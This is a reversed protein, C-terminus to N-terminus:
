AAGAKLKAILEEANSISLLWEEYRGGAVLEGWPAPDGNKHLGYVGLSEDMLATIDGTLKELAALLEASQKDLELLETGVASIIGKQELEDTPLGRCANVCAVIRRADAIVSEEDETGIEAIHFSTEASSVFVDGSADQYVGWPESTHKM